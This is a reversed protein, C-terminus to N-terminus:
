NYVHFSLAREGFLPNERHLSSGVRTIPIGAIEPHELHIINIVDGATILGRELSDRVIIDMGRCRVGEYQRGVFGLVVILYAALFLPILIKIIVKM